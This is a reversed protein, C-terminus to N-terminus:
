LKKVESDYVRVMETLRSLLSNYVGGDNEVADMDGALVCNNILAKASAAPKQAANHESMVDIVRRSPLRAIFSLAKDDSTKVDVQRISDEGYKAKWDRIDDPTVEDFKKLGNM